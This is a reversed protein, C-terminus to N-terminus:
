NLDAKMLYVNYSDWESIAFYLEGDKSWPHMFGGYAKPYEATRVLTSPATWEGQPSDAERLVINGAIPDLYTMQWLGDHFRVSLEASIGDAIPTAENSDVPAWTGDVWYQYATKNLVDDKPVRALGVTGIRGNVTGFMYVFDGAPVMTSVQFKSFGFMNDWQAHPDKVWTSGNDDSYAIGGYNTWWMGPVVSWRRISMYSMYQRDGVAFGSTPIVTTEWNKIKRSDLLEAAHCRSDQVMSDLTLGDSLDTDTSHSLVNSRWDDGGVVGYEWSKGFSDGFAVAVEGPKSEWMIGLDTGEVQWRKDTRNISGQGTMQSIVSVNGVLPQKPAPSTPGAEAPNVVAPPAPLQPAALPGPIPIPITEPQPDIEIRPFPLHASGTADVPEETTDTLDPCPDMCPDPLPDADVRTNDPEPDPVPVLEVSPYPVPIVFKDPVSQVPPLVPPANPDVSEPPYDKPDFGTEGCQNVPAPPAANAPAALVSSSVLALALACGVVISRARM